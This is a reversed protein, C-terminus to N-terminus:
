RLLVLAVERSSLYTLFRLGELSNVGEGGVWGVGGEEAEVAMKMTTNITAVRGATMTNPVAEGDAEATAGVRTVVGTAGIQTAAAMQMPALLGELTHVKFFLYAQFCAHVCAEANVQKLCTPFAPVQVDKFMSKCIDQKCTCAYSQKGGGLPNAAHRHLKLAEAGAKITITVNM